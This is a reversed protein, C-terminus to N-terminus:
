SYRGRGQILAKNEVFHPAEARKTGPHRGLADGPRQAANVISSVYSRRHPGDEIMEDAAAVKLFAWRACRQRERRAFRVHDGVPRHGPLLAADEGKLYVASFRRFGRSGM